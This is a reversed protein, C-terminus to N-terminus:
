SGLLGQTTLEDILAKVRKALEETTVTSTAFTTKDAVGTPGGWGTSTTIAPEAGLTTLAAGANADDVLTAGFTSITTSAPLVLTKIDADVETDMLAGATTVAATTIRGDVGTNFDTIDAVVHNHAVFAAASVNEVIAEDPKISAPATQMEFRLREAERQSINSIDVRQKTRLFPRTRPM